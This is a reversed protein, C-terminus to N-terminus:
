ISMRRHRNQYTAAFEHLLVIHDTQPYCQVVAHVQAIAFSAHRVKARMQSLLAVFLANTVVIVDVICELDCKNYILWYAVLSVM